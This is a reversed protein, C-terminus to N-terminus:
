KLLLFRNRSYVYRYGALAITQGDKVDKPVTFDGKATHLSGGTILALRLYDPHIATDAAGCLIIRVPVHIGEALSIDKVPAKNDAILVIPESTKTQVISKIIAEVDNEAADGGNGKSMTSKVTTDLRQMTCQLCSHIGGTSGIVKKDDPKGDGDNFFFLNLQSRYHLQERFWLALQETYPSMSGTLDTVVVAAGWDDHRQLVTLVV